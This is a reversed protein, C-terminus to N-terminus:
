KGKSASFLASLLTGIAAGISGKAPRTISPTPPPPAPKTAPASPAHPASAGALVISEDLATMALLLGACGLQQDVASPDYALL